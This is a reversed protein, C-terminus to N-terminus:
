MQFSLKDHIQRQLEIFTITLPRTREKSIAKRNGGECDAGGSGVLVITHAEPHATALEPRERTNEVPQRGQPLLPASATPFALGHPPLSRKGLAASLRPLCAPHPKGCHPLRRSRTERDAGTEM